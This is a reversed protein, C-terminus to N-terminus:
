GPAVCQAALNEFVLGFSVNSDLQREAQEVLGICAAGWEAEAVSGTGAARRVQSRFGEALLRLMRRAAVRNAVDKSARADGEVAAAASEDVLKALVGGLEISGVGRGLDDLAQGVTQQWAGLRTTAVAQLVGPSGDAFELAWRRDVGSLDLGARGIWERMASAGLPAFPV